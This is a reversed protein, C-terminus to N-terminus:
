FAYLFIDHLLKSSKNGIRNSLLCTEDWIVYLIQEHLLLADMLDIQSCLLIFFVDKCGFM